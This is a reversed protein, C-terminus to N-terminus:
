KKKKKKKKKKPPVAEGVTLEVAPGAPATAQTTGAAVSQSLVIGDQQQLRGNENRIAAKRQKSLSKKIRRLRLERKVVTARCEEASLAALAGAETQGLVGPVRCYRITAQVLVERALQADATFLQTSGDGAPTPFYAWTDSLGAPPGTHLPVGPGSLAELGIADGQQIPVPSTVYTRAEDMVNPVAPSVATTGAFTYTLTGGPRLVRLRYTAGTQTSRVAWHTIAGNVPSTLPLIGPRSMQSQQVGTCGPLCAGLSFNQTRDLPHGITTTEAAAAAGGPAALAGAGVLVSIALGRIGRM